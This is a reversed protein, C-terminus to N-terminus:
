YRKITLVEINKDILAKFKDKLNEEGVISGYHYPIVKKPQLHNTLSAAEEYNMTYTGGIPVLLTDCKIKMNDENIDSDGIYFIKENDLSILFGLYNKERPHFRKNINYSPIGKININDLNIEENTKLYRVDEGELEKDIMNRISLPAIYITNDKRIKLIDKKSFHDYHDHSILVIDADMYDKDINFPDIYIIKKNTIKFSAHTLLDIKTVM